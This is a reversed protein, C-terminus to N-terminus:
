CLGLSHGAHGLGVGDVDHRDVDDELLEERRKRERSAQALQAEAQRLAAQQQPRTSAELQRLRAELEAYLRANELAVSLSACITSLLRVDAPYMGAM